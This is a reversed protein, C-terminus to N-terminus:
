LSHNNRLTRRGARSVKREIDFHSTTGDKMM